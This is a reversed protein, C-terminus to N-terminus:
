RAIFRLWGARAHGDQFDILRPCPYGRLHDPSVDGGSRGVLPSFPWLQCGWRVEGGTPLFALASMGVQGGWWHPPLGTSVDGGSRGVLPSPRWLQCGWRVEGGTPLSALASMGVQGGWLHPPLRPWSRRASSSTVSRRRGSKRSAKRSAKACSAPAPPPPTCARSSCSTPARTM